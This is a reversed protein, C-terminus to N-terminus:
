AEHRASRRCELLGHAPNQLSYDKYPSSGYEAVFLIVTKLVARLRAAKLAQM